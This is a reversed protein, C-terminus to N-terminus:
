SAVHQDRGKDPQVASIVAGGNLREVLSRALQDVADHDGLSICRIRASGDSRATAEVQFPFHFVDRYALPRIRNLPAASDQKVYNFSIASSTWRRWGAAAARVARLAPSGRHVVSAISERDGDIGVPHLYWFMGLAAASGPIDPDRGSTVVHLTRADAVDRGAEAVAAALAAKANVRRDRAWGQLQSMTTAPLELDLRVPEARPTPHRPDDDTPAAFIGPETAVHKCLLRRMRASAPLHPAPGGEFHAALGDLLRLFARNSVGDMLAHHTQMGVIITDEDTFITIDVLPAGTVADAASVTDPGDVWSLAAPRGGPDRRVAPGGDRVWRQVVSRGDTDFRRCFPDFGASLHRLADVFATTETVGSVSILQRPLYRGPGGTAYHLMMQQMASAPITSTGHRRRAPRVAQSMSRVAGTLAELMAAAHSDPLRDPDFDLVAQIDGAQQRFTIAAEYPLLNGSGAGPVAVAALRRILPVSSPQTADDDLRLDMAFRGTRPDDREKPFWRLAGYSLGADPADDFGDIIRGVSAGTLPVHAVVIPHHLAFWGVATSLDMGDVTARGNREVDVVTAGPGEVEALAHGLAAPLVRSLPHQWRTRLRDASGLEAILRRSRRPRADIRGTRGAALRQQWESADLAFAGTRQQRLVADAFAAFGNDTPAPRGSLLMLVRDELVQWSWVDVVLHHAALVLVGSGNPARVALARLLPVARHDVADHLSSIAAELREDNVTDDLVEVDVHGVQQVQAPSDPTDFVARLVPTTDLLAVMAQELAARPPLVDVAILHRQQWRHPQALQLAFFWRQAPSLEIVAAPLAVTADHAAPGCVQQLDAFRPHAYVDAPSVTLGADRAVRVLRLVTLSDGGAAFFDDAAAPPLGLVAIWASALPGTEVRRRAAAVPQPPMPLAGQDVQGSTTRPIVTVLVLRHPVAAPPLDRHLARDLQAADPCGAVFLILEPDAAADRVATTAWADTCLGTSRVASEVADLEVRNGRIKVQRDIRGTIVLQGDRNLVAVDGTLYGRRGPSCPDDRFRERTLAADDLYGLAVGAGTILLHGPVGLPASAAGDILVRAGLGRIPAGVPVPEADGTVAAVTATVTAETPGYINFHREGPASALDARRCHDGASALMQLAPANAGALLGVMPAPLFAHTVRAGMLDSRLDSTAPDVHVLAAGATLAGAVHCIWPDVTPPAILLVRSGASIGFRQAEGQILNSLATRSVVVGKPAGTTGSTFIIYAPSDQGTPPRDHDSATRLREVGAGTVRAVARCRREMPVPDAGASDSFPVYVANMSLTALFAAIRDILPLGGVSVCDGPMTTVSQLAQIMEETRRHLQQATYTRGRDEIVVTDPQGSLAAMVGTEVARFPYPPRPTATQEVAAREDDPLLTDSHLPTESADVFARLFAMMTAGIAPLHDAFSSGAPARVVLDLSGDPNHTAVTILGGAQDTSPMDIRKAMADNDAITPADRRQVVLVAAESTTLTAPAGVEDLLMADVAAHERLELLRRTARGVHVSLTDAWGHQIRVPVVTTMQGFMDLQDAARTDVAVFTTVDGRGQYRALAHAHAALLVGARTARARAAGRDIDALTASDLTTHWNQATSGSAGGGITTTFGEFQRAWYSRTHEDADPSATLAAAYAPPQRLGAPAATEGHRYRAAVASHLLGMSHGDAVIHDITEIVAWRDDDLRLIEVTALPGAAPDFRRHRNQEIRDRLWGHSEQTARADVHSVEVRPATDRAWGNGPHWILYLADYTALTLRYASCLRDADLRGTITYAYACNVSNGGVAHSLLLGRQASHAPLYSEAGTTTSPKAGIARGAAGPATRDSM